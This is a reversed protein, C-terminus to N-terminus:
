IKFFKRLPTDNDIKEVLLVQVQKKNLGFFKRLLEIEEKCDFAHVWVSKQLPYFGLEKLKRRFANRKMRAEQPIDFIVLRYKKDWKKPRKIELDDIQYKGARKKGEKTLAICVDHNVKKIELLGRRRLYNFANTAQKKSVKKSKSINRILHLVFHPSSTAVYIAGALLLYKLIEKSYYVLKIKKIKKM